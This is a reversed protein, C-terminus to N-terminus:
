REHGCCPPRERGLSEVRRIADEVTDPPRVLAGSGHAPLSWRGSLSVLGLAVVLLSAALQVRQGSIGAVKQVGIGLAVLVPLTGLWFAALTLAGHVPNGTGAAAVAFAYLWGCPLLATLLGIALARLLAPLGMAAAHGKGIWRGLTASPSLAPLRVGLIRLAAAAGLGVMFTGAAVMAARQVGVLSGGLDLAAGLSGAVAGLLAYGLLRGGNYAILLRFRGPAASRGSAPAARFQAGPAGGSSGPLAAFAALPGCMGACHLSGLVSARLVTLILAAM